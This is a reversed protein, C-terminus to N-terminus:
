ACVNPAEGSTMPSSNAENESALEDGRRQEAIQRVAPAPPRDQDEAQDARDDAERHQGDRLAQRHQEGRPDDVAQRAAVDGRRAGVDGVDRVSSFRAFAYPTSPAAKPSPKM